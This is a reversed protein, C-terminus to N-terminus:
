YANDNTLAVMAQNALSTFNPNGGESSSHNDEDLDKGGTDMAPLPLLDWPKGMRSHLCKDEMCEPREELKCLCAASHHNQQCVPRNNTTNYLSAYDRPIFESRTELRELRSEGRKVACGCDHERPGPYIRGSYEPKEGDGM